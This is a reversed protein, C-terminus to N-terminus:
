FTSESMINDVIDCGTLIFLYIKTFLLPQIQMHRMIVNEKRKFREMYPKLRINLWILGKTYMKYVIVFM